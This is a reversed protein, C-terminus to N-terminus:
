VRTVPTPCHIHITRQEIQPELNTRLEKQVVVCITGLQLSSQGYATLLMTIGRLQHHLEFFLNQSQM